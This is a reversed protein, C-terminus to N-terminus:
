VKTPSSVLASLSARGVPGVTGTTLDLVRAQLDRHRFAAERRILLGSSGEKAQTRVLYVDLGSPTPFSRLQRLSDLRLGAPVVLLWDGCAIRAATQLAETANRAQVDRASSFSVQRRFNPPLEFGPASCWVLVEDVYPYYWAVDGEISNTVEDALLCVSVPRHPRAVLLKRDHEPFGTPRSSDKRYWIVWNGLPEGSKWSDDAPLYRCQLERKAGFVTRIDGGDIHQLHQQHQAYHSYLTEWPGRPFTLIILGGDRVKRELSDVFARVDPQHELCEGSVAADFSSDAISDFTGACLSVRVPQRAVKACVERASQLVPWSFDIGLVQRGPGDNALLCALGATGCGYDLIRLNRYPRLVKRVLALRPVASWDAATRHIEESTCENSYGGTDALAEEQWRDCAAVWEYLGFQRAALRATAVDSLWLLGQVLRVPQRRGRLAFVELLGQEWRAADTDMLPGFLPAPPSSWETIPPPQSAEVFAYDVVTMGGDVGRGDATVYLIRLRSHNARQLAAPEDVAILVDFDTDPGSLALEGPAIAKVETTLHRQASGAVSVLHGRKALLAPLQSSPKDGFYFGITLRM